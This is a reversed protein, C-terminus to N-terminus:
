LMARSSAVCRAQRANVGRHLRPSLNRRQDQGEQAAIGLHLHAQDDFPPLDVNLDLPEVLAQARGYHHGAAHDGQGHRPWLAMSDDRRRVPDRCTAGGQRRSVQPQRIANPYPQAVARQPVPRGNWRRASTTCISAGPRRAKSAAAM